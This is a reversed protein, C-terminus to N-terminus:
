IRDSREGGKQEEQDALARQVYYLVQQNISRKDKEAAKRLRELETRDIRITIKATVM